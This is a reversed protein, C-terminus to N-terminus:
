HLGFIARIYRQSHVAATQGGTNISIDPKLKAGTSGAGACGCHGDAVIGNHPGVAPNRIIRRRRDLVFCVATTGAADDKVAIGAGHVAFHFQLLIQLNALALAQGDLVPGAQICAAM